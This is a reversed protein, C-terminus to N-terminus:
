PTPKPTLLSLRATENHRGLMWRIQHQRNRHHQLRPQAHIQCTLRHPHGPAPHAGHDRDRRPRRLRRAEGREGRHASEPEPQRTQPLRELHRLRPGLSHRPARAPRRQRDEGCGLAQGDADGHVPGDLREDVHLPMQLRQAIIEGTQALRIRPSAYIVDFPKKLHGAALHRATQEAQAYGPNTLGTCTRPGGLPGDTNCQAPGHRM